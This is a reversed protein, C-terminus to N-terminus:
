VAYDMVYVGAPEVAWLTEKTHSYFQSNERFPFFDSTPASMNLDDAGFLYIHIDAGDWVIKQVISRIIARRQEYPMERFNDRFNALSHKLIDLDTLSLGNPPSTPLSNLQEKLAKVKSDLEQIKSLIYDEAPTGAAKGLASLLGKIEKNLEEIGSNIQRTIRENEDRSDTAGSRRETLQVALDSDECSLGTITNIVYHDLDNGNLNKINCIRTRSKEKKSCMYYFVIENDKNLRKTPKPRMYDGCNGCILLGSLLAAGGHNRRFGKSKNQSLLKQVEIWDKGNILGPHKGVSIIWESFDRRLAAKHPKQLTRYYTMIGHECDFDEKGAFLEAGNDAIYNYAAEDAIMYVPNTLINRISFRSFDHTNKTSFGNQLLFTETKTLSQLELYKKFILKVLEAEEPIPTLKCAKRSKGDISVGTISESAYGTPTVGGLWRGTKSLEYLNDRVREAILDREMQAFVSSIYMMSRGMTTSMDFGEKVSHFTVGYERLEDILGCFYSLNRMIRDLRYCVIADLKGEAADKMMRKFNPRDINAGTFGEDEYVGIDEEQYGALKDFIYQRCVTIQNEISEGKGTFKSKRSYIAVQRKEAPLQNAGM